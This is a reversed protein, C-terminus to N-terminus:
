EVYARVHRLVIEALTEDGGIVLNGDELYSEGAVRRAAVMAFALARGEIWADPKKDEAPSERPSLGWHWSGAGM